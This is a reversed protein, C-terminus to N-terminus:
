HPVVPTHDGRGAVALHVAERRFSGSGTSLDLDGAGGRIERDMVDAFCTNGPGQAKARYMAADADALVQAASRTDGPEIMTIGISASIHLVLTDVNLPQDLAAHVRAALATVADIGAPQMVLVVFEDGGMRALVDADRLVTRMRQAATRLVDDGTMHGHYDNIAKLKDLDIFMIAALTSPDADLASVTREVALSWNPLGTLRDHTADHHLQVRTEHLETIDSFSLVMPSSGPESPDLLCGNGVIWAREGNPRDLGVVEGGLPLGTRRIWAIPNDDASIREGDHRYLPLAVARERHLGRVPGGDTGLLSRAAANTFEFNGASDVLFVGERLADLVAYFQQQTRVEGADRSCVVAHGDAVPIVAVRVPLDTGGAGRHVCRQVGGAAAIDDADFAAGVLTALPAGLAEHRSLGYLHEAGRDWGTVEGRADITMLADTITSATSVPNTTAQPRDTSIARFTVEFLGDGARAAVALTRLMSGDSRTHVVEFGASADGCRHLAATHERMLELSEPHMFSSLATDILQAPSGIGVARAAVPNVYRLGDRDHVYIPVLSHDLLRRYRVDVADLDHETTM